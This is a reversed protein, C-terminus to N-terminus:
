PAKRFELISKLTLFDTSIWEVTSAFQVDDMGDRRFFTFTLETGRGNQMIRMPMYLLETGPVFMAHDLVGFNNPPTFRFHRLGDPTEGQWDGNDLPKFSGPEVAAWNEYNAPKVLYDYVEDFPRDISVSITHSRRM